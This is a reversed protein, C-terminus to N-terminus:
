RVGTTRAGGLDDVDLRLVEVLQGIRPRRRRACGRSGPEVAVQDAATMPGIYSSAADRAPPIRVMAASRGRRCWRTRAARGRGSSPPESTAWSRVRCRPRARWRRARRSGAGPARAQGSATRRRDDGIAWELAEVADRTDLDARVLSRDIGVESISAARGEDGPGSWRRSLQDRRWRVCSTLGGHGGHDRAPPPRRPFSGRPVRGRNAM